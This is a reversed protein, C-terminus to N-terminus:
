EGARRSSPTRPQRRRLGATTPTSSETATRRPATRSSSGAAANAVSRSATSLTGHISRTRPSAHAPANTAHLVNDRDRRDLRVPQDDGAVAGIDPQQRALLDELRAGATRPM